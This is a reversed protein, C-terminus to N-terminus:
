WGLRLKKIRRGAAYTKDDNQKGDKRGYFYQKWKIEQLEPLENDEIIDKAALMFADVDLSLRKLSLKALRNGQQDALKHLDERLEEAIRYPNGSDAEGTPFGPSAWIPNRQLRNLRERIKGMREVVNSSPLGPLGTNKVVIGMFLTSTLVLSAVGQLLCETLVQTDINILMLPSGGSVRGMTIHYSGQIIGSACSILSSCYLILLTAFLSRIFLYDTTLYWERHRNRILLFTVFVPLIMAAPLFYKPVNELKAVTVDLMGLLALNAPLAGYFILGWARLGLLKDLFIM